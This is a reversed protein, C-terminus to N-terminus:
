SARCQNYGVTPLVQGAGHICEAIDCRFSESRPSSFIPGALNVYSVLLSLPLSIVPFLLHICLSLHRHHHHTQPPDSSFSFLNIPFLCLSDLLPFLPLPVALQLKFLTTSLTQTLSPSHFLCHCLSSVSLSVFSLSCISLSIYFTLSLFTRCVFICLSLHRTSLLHSLLLHDSVQGGAAVM